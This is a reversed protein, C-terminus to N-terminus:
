KKKGTNVIVGRSNDPGSGDTKSMREASLRLVNFTGITNVQLCKSFM